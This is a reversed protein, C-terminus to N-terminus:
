ASPSAAARRTPQEAAELQVQQPPPPVPPLLPSARLAVRACAKSLPGARHWTRLPAAGRPSLQSYRWLTSRAAVHRMRPLLIAPMM